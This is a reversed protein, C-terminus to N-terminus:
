NNIIDRIEDIVIPLSAFSQEYAIINDEIKSNVNKINGEINYITNNRYLISAIYIILGFILIIYIGIIFDINNNIMLTVM